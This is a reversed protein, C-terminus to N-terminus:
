VTHHEDDYTLFALEPNQYLVSAEFVQQYWALIEDFRRNSLGRTRVKQNQWKTKEKRTYQDSANETFRHGTWDDLEL